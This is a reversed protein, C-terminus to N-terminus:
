LAEGIEKSQESDQEQLHNNGVKESGSLGVVKEEMRLRM